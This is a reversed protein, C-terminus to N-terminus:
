LEFFPRRRNRSQTTQSIPSNPPKSARDSRTTRHNQLFSFGYRRFFSFPLTDINEFFDLVQHSVQSIRELASLWLNAHENFLDIWVYLTSVAISFQGCLAVVTGKRNLYARLVYLIFRLSYSGYPILVDCLLAHTRGCSTCMVREITLMDEVRVGHEISILWRTYSAHPKCCGLAGCAPCSDYSPTAADLLEKDSAKIRNLKCLIAKERIM